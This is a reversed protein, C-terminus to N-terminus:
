YNRSSAQACVIELFCLEGSNLMSSSLTGFFLEKMVWSQVGTWEKCFQKIMMKKDKLLRQWEHPSWMWVYWIHSNSNQPFNTYFPASFVDSTSQNSPAVSLSTKLEFILWILPWVAETFLWLRSKLVFNHFNSIIRKEKDSFTYLTYKYACCTPARRNSVGSSLTVGGSSWVNIVVLDGDDWLLSHLSSKQYRDSIWSSNLYQWIFLNTTQLWFLFFCLLGHSQLKSM